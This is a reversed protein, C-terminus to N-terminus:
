GKAQDLVSGETQGIKPLKKGTKEVTRLYGYGIFGVGFVTWLQTPLDIPGLTKGAILQYIPIFIYNTILVVFFVYNFTPRARRVYPDKSQLEVTIQRRLDKNDELFAKELDAAIEKEAQAAALTIGTLATENKKKEDESTFLNKLVSDASSVIKGVGDSLIHHYWAM